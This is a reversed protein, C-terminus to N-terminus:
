LLPKWRESRVARGAHFNREAVQADLSAGNSPLDGPDRRPSFAHVPKERPVTLM